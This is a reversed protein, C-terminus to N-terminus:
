QLCLDKHVLIRRHQISISNTDFYFNEAERFLVQRVEVVLLQGEVVAQDVQGGVVPINELPGGALLLGRFLEVVGDHVHELLVGLVLIPLAPDPHWVEVLETLSDM